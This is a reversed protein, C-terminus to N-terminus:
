WKYNGYYFDGDSDAFTVLIKNKSGNNVIDQVNFNTVIEMSRGFRFFMNRSLQKKFVPLSCGTITAAMKLRRSLKITAKLMSGIMEEDKVNFRYDVLLLCNVNKWIIPRVVFYSSTVEHQNTSSACKYVFYKNPYYFFRWTIFEINRTFEVINYNWYNNTALIEKPSQVRKFQVNKVNISDPFIFSKANKQKSTFLFKFISFLHNIKIYKEMFGQAKVNFANLIALSEDTLGIGFNFKLNKYKNALIVGALSNRAQKNVFYDMGVFANYTKGEFTFESPMVLLQGAIDGKEDIAILTESSAKKAFPNIVFRYSFSEEINNRKAYVAKNYEILPIYDKEEFKKIIM